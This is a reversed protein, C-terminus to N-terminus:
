GRERRAFEGQFGSQERPSGKYGSGGQWSSAAM